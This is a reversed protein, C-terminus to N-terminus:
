PFHPHKVLTAAPHSCPSLNPPGQKETHLASSEQELCKQKLLSIEM